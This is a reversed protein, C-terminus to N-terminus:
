PKKPVVVLSDLEARTLSVPAGEMPWSQVIRDAAVKEEELTALFKKTRRIPRAKGDVGYTDPSGM